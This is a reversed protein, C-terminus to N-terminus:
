FTNLIFRLRDHNIPDKRNLRLWYMFSLISSRLFIVMILGFGLLERTGNTQVDIGFFGIENWWILCMKLRRERERLTFQNLENFDKKKDHSSLQINNNIIDRFSKIFKTEEMRMWVPRTKSNVYIRVTPEQSWIICKQLEGYKEM